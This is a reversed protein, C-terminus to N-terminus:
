QPARICWWHIAICLTFILTCQILADCTSHWAAGHLKWCCAICHLWHMDICPLETCDLACWYLLICNFQLEAVNEASTCAWGIVWCEICHLWHLYICHLETWYLLICHLKICVLATFHLQMATCHLATFCQLESPSEATGGAWGFLLATCNLLICHLETFNLACHFVIANCNLLTKLLAAPEGSWGNNGVSENSFLWWQWWTFLFGNCQVM